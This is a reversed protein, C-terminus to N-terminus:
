KNKTNDYQELLHQIIIKVLLKRYKESLYIKKLRRTNGRQM